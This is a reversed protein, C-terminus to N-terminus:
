AAIGFSRLVAKGEATMRESTWPPDWVERIAVELVGPEQLLRARIDERIFEMCPCATATFTLDVQVREGDRRIAYVIGLDVVSIPLEPDRVQKLASWLHATDESVVRTM